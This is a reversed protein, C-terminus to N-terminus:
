FENPFYPISVQVLVTSAVGIVEAITYSYRYVRDQCCQLDYPCFSHEWFSRISVHLANEIGEQLPFHFFGTSRLTVIRVTETSYVMVGFRSYVHSGRGVNRKRM